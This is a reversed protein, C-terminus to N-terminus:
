LNIDIDLAERIESYAEDLSDAANELHDIFEQLADGKEGEQARESLKDFEDQAEESISRLIDSLESSELFAITSELNKLAAKKM